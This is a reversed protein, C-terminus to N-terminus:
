MNSDYFDSMICTLGKLLWKHQPVGYVQTCFARQTQSVFDPSTFYIVRQKMKYVIGNIKTDYSLSNWSCCDNWQIYREGVFEEHHFVLKSFSGTFPHMSNHLLTHIWAFPHSPLSNMCSQAPFETVLSVIRNNLSNFLTLCTRCTKFSRKFQNFMGM